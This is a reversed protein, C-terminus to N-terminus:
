FLYQLIYVIIPSGNDDPASWSLLLATVEPLISVSTFSDPTGLFYM